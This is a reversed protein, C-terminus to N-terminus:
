SSSRQRELRAIRATLRDCQLTTDTVHSLFSEMMAKPALLALEDQLYDRLDDSLNAAVESTATQGRKAQQMTAYAVADGVYKSLLEEWDIDLQEGLKSFTKLVLPDGTLEVQDQQLLQQQQTLLLNALTAPPAKLTCDAQTSGDYDTILLEQEALTLCIQWPTGSIIIALSQRPEGALGDFLEPSLKLALNVLRTIHQYVAQM